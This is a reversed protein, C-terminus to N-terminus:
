RPGAACKACVGFLELSHTVKRYGMNRASRELSEAVCLHLTKVSHCVRCIIHHHHPEGSDFEYRYAGDGFDCRRVVNIEELAALCRYVTVPDCLGKAIRHHIEDATFPGHERTLVELIARRAGTIRQGKQRLVGLARDLSRDSHRHAMTALELRARASRCGRVVTTRPFFTFDTGSKAM